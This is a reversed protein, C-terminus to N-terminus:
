VVVIPQKLLISILKQGTENKKTCVTYRWTYRSIRFYRDFANVIYPINYINAAVAQMKQSQDQKLRWTKFKSCRVKVKM